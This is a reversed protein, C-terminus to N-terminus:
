EQRALLATLGYAIWFTAAWDPAFFLADLLSHVLAYAVSGLLALALTRAAPQPDQRYARWAQAFLAGYLWAAAALGLLGIRTWFELLGNNPNWTAEQGPFRRRYYHYYADLGWGTIPRERVLLWANRWMTLRNSWTDLALLRGLKGTLWALLAGGAGLGGEALLLLRSRLVGYLFLVAAIAIYSGRSYTLALGVGIPGVALLYLFRRRGWPLFLAGPIVLAAVRGLFLALNNASFTGYVSTARRVGESSVEAHMWPTFVQVIGGLAVLSASLVLADVVWWAGGRRGRFAVLLLPYLLLPEVITVRYERLSIHLLRTGDATVFSPDTSWFLSASCVALFALPPLAERWRHALWTALSRRPAPRAATALRRLELLLGAALSLLAMIELLSFSRGAITAPQAYLPLVFAAACLALDLRLLTLMGLLVLVVLVLAPPLPRYLAALGVALGGLVALVQRHEPLRHFREVPGWARRWMAALLLFLTRWAAQCKEKMTTFYINSTADFHPM